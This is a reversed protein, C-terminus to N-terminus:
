TGETLDNEKVMEPEKRRSIETKEVHDESSLLYRPQEDLMRMEVRGNKM